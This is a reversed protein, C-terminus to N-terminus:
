MNSSAWSRVERYVKVIEQPPLQTGMRRVSQRIRDPLSQDKFPAADKMTEYLELAAVEFFLAHRRKEPNENELGLWTAVIMLAESRNKYGATEVHSLIQNINNQYERATAIRTAILIYAMADGAIAARDMWAESAGLDAFRASHDLDILRAVGRMAAAYGDEGLKRYGEMAADIMGLRDRIRAVHYQTVLDEPFKTLAEDCLKQASSADLREFPVGGTRRDRDYPSDALKDCASAEPGPSTIPQNPKLRPSQIADLAPYQIRKLGSVGYRKQDVTNITLLRTARMWDALAQPDHLGPLGPMVNILEVSGVPDVVAVKSGDPFFKLALPTSSMTYSRLVLGTAFEFIWLTNSADVAALFKDDPSLITAVIPHGRTDLINQFGPSNITFTAIVGDNYGAVISEGSATMTISRVAGTPLKLERIGKNSVEVLRSPESGPSGTLLIRRGDRSSVPKIEFRPRSIESAAIWDGTSTAWASLIIADRNTPVDFAVFLRTGDPSFFFRRPEYNKFALTALTKGTSTEVLTLPVDKDDIKKGKVVVQAGSPAVPGRWSIEHQEEPRRTLSGVSSFLSGRDFTESNFIQFVLHGGFLVPLKNANGTAVHFVEPGLSMQKNNTTDWAFWNDNALNFVTRSDDSILLEENLGIDYIQSSSVGKERAIPEQRAVDAPRLVWNRVYKDQSSTIIAESNSSFVANTVLGNHGSIIAIPRRRALAQGIQDSRRDMCIESGEPMVWVRATRDASASVLLTGTSDQMLTQIASAHSQLTVVSSAGDICHVVINGNGQGSIVGRGDKTLVLSAVRDAAINSKLTGTNVSWANIVKGTPAAVLVAGDASFSLKSQFAPSRELSFAEPQGRLTRVLNGTHTNFVWVTGLPNISGTM